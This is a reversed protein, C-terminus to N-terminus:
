RLARRKNIEKNREICKQVFVDILTLGCSYHLVSMKYPHTQLAYKYGKAFRRFLGTKHLM